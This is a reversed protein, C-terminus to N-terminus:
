SGSSSNVHIEWTEAVLAQIYESYHKRFHGPPRGGLRVYEGLLRVYNEMSTPCLKVVRQGIGVSSFTVPKPVHKGVCECEIVPQSSGSYM